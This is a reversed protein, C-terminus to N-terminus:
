IQRDSIYLYIGLEVYWFINFLYNFSIEIKWGVQTVRM